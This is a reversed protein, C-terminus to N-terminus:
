QQKASQLWQRFEGVLSTEDIQMRRQLASRLKELPIGPLAESENREVYGGDVLRHVTLTEDHWRWVEPVGLRGYIPMKHIAASRHEVEIALDPPPATNLDVSEIGRVDQEHQIYYSQDSELGGKSEGSRLTMSGAPRVPIRRAVRWETIFDHILLAVLEHFSSLTMIELLGDDFTMRLGRNDPNDRLTVYDTWGASLMVASEAASVCEPPATDEAVASSSTTPLTDTSM